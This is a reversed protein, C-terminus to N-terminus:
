KEERMDDYEPLTKIIAVIRPPLQEEWDKDETSILEEFPEGLFTAGERNDVWHCDEKTYRHTEVHSGLEWFDGMKTNRWLTKEWVQVQPTEDGINPEYTHLLYYDNILM